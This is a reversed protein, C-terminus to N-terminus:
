NTEKQLPRLTYVDICSHMLSAKVGSM